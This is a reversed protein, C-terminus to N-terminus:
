QSTMHYLWTALNEIGTDLDVTPREPNPGPIDPDAYIWQMYDSSFGVSEDWILTYERDDISVADTERIVAPRTGRAPNQSQHIGRLPMTTEGGHKAKDGDVIAQLHLEPDPESPKFNTLVAVGVAPREAMVGRIFDRIPTVNRTADLGEQVLDDV